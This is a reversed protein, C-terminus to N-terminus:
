IQFRLVGHIKLHIDRKCYQINKELHTVSYDLFLYKKEYYRYYGQNTQICHKETPLDHHWKCRLHILCM